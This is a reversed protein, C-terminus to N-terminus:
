FMLWKFALFATWSSDYFDGLALYAGHLEINMFAKPQLGIMANYEMGIMSGGNDPDVMSSAAAIGVKATLLNPIISRRANVTGGILGYGMNSLDPVASIYRNVVNGHPFLLYAGSSIFISGPSGWSNGTIVGSYEDDDLGNDDGSAFILEATVSDHATQGYKYGGRVNASFGMIDAGKSWSQDEGRVDVTGLNAM